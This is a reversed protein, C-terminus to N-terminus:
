RNQSFELSEPRVETFSELVPWAGQAGAICKGFGETWSLIEGDV